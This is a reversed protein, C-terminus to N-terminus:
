HLRGTFFSKVSNKIFKLGLWLLYTVQPGLISIMYRYKKGDYRIHTAVTQLIFAKEIVSKDGANAGCTIRRECPCDAKLSALTAETAESAQSQTTSKGKRKRCVLEEPGNACNSLVNQM